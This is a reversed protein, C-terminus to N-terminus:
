RIDWSSLHLTLLFLYSSSGSTAMTFYNTLGTKQVFQMIIKLHEFIMPLRMRSLFCRKSFNLWIFNRLFSALVEVAASIESEATNEVYQAHTPPFSTLKKWELSFHLKISFPRLNKADRLISYKPQPTRMNRVGRVFRSVLSHKGLQIDQYLVSLASHPKNIQLSGIGRKYLTTLFELVTNVSPVSSDFDRECCFSLWQRIISLYNKQESKKWSAMIISFTKAPLGETSLQKSVIQLRHLNPITSSPVEHRPGMPLQTFCSVITLSISFGRFVIFYDSVVAPQTWIPLDIACYLIAVIKNTYLKGSKILHLLTIAM